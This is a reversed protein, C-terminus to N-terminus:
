SLILYNPGIMRLTLSIKRWELSIYDWEELSISFTGKMAHVCTHDIVEERPLLQDACMDEDNNNSVSGM